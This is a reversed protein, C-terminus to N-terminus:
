AAQRLNNDADSIFGHEYLWRGYFLRREEETKAMDGDEYRRKLVDIHPDLPVLRLNNM